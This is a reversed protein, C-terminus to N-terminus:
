RDAWISFDQISGFKPGDEFDSRCAALAGATVTTAAVLAAEVALILGKAGNRSAAWAAIQMEANEKSAVTRDLFRIVDGGIQQFVIYPVEPDPPAFDQYVRPCVTSLITVLSSELSM